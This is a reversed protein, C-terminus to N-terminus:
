LYFQINVESKASELSSIKSWESEHAIRIRQAFEKEMDVTAQRLKQITDNSHKLSREILYLFYMQLEELRNQHDKM